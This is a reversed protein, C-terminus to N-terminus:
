KDFIEDIHFFFKAAITREGMSVGPAGVPQVMNKDAKPHSFCFFLPSVLYLAHTSFLHSSIICSTLCSLVWRKDQRTECRTDDQRMQHSTHSKKILHSTHSYKKGGFYELFRKRVPLLPDSSHAMFINSAWSAMMGRHAVNVTSPGVFYNFHM